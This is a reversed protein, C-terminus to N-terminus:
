LEFYNGPRTKIIGKMELQLLLINLDSLHNLKHKLLDVHMKGNRLTEIITNESESLDDFLTMQPNENEEWAMFRLFDEPSQILQAKNVQILKNTGKSFPYNVNGPFAFVESNYDNALEATIISGGKEKSEIVITAHTMGAVIRNRQPFNERDPKTGHTFESLVGGNEMMQHLTNSHEAPYVRDLSSGLVAITQLGHKVSERHAKIDVGFALGSVISVNMGSMKQVLQEVLNLGYSTANRTGVIAVSKPLNLDFKGKGYLMIPGDDCYKLRNPYERDLFFIPFISHDSIFKMEQEAQILAKKFDISNITAPGFEKIQILNKKKEKFIGEASGIESLLKKARIPGINDLLSLGIEYLTSEKM